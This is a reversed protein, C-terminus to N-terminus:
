SLAEFRGSIEKEVALQEALEATQQLLEAKEEMGANQKMEEYQLELKQCIEKEIALQQTLQEIIEKSQGAETQLVVIHKEDQQAAQQAIELVELLEEYKAKYEEQRALQSATLVEEKQRILENQLDIIQDQLEQSTQNHKQLQQSLEEGNKTDVAKLVLKMNEVIRKSLSQQRSLTQM